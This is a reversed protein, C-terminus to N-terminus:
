KRGEVSERRRERMKAGPAPNPIQERIKKVKRLGINV